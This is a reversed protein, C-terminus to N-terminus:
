SWRRVLGIGMGNISDKMPGPGQHDLRVGEFTELIVRSM